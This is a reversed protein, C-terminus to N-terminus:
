PMPTAAAFFLASVTRAFEATGARAQSSQEGQGATKHFLLLLGEGLDGRGPFEEERLVNRLHM